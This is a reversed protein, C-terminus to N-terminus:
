GFAVRDLSADEEDVRLPTYAPILLADEGAERLASVLTNAQLCTGCYMGGAGAALHVIKM